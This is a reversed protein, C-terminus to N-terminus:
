SPVGARTSDQRFSVLVRASLADCGDSCNGPQSIFSVIMGTYLAPVRRRQFSASVTRSDHFWHIAALLRDHQQREAKMLRYADPEAHVLVRMAQAIRSEIRVAEFAQRRASM